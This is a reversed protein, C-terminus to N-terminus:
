RVHRADQDRVVVVEHAGPEDFQQAGVGVDVDDTLRCGSAFGDLSDAPQRGVDDQHVDAHGVEVADGCGVGEGPGGRPCSDQDEGGEFL